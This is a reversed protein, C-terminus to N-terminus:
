LITLGRIFLFFTGLALVFLAILAWTIWREARARTIM